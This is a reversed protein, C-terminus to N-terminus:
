ITIQRAEQGHGNVAGTVRFAMIEFAISSLEHFTCPLGHAAPYRAPVQRAFVIPGSTAAANTAANSM